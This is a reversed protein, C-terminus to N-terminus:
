TVDTVGIDVSFITYDSRRGTVPSLTVRGQFIWILQQHRNAKRLLLVSCCLLFQPFLFGYFLVRVHSARPLVQSAKEHTSGQTRM